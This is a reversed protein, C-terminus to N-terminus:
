KSDGKVKQLRYSEGELPVFLCCDRLRDFVAQGAFDRLGQVNLNTTIITPLMESYRANILAYIRGEVTESWKGKGVDDLVLFDARRLSDLVEKETYGVGQYAANILYMLELTNQFIGTYNRQLAAILIAVALHTKGTGPAGYIVLGQGEQHCKSIENIYRQITHVAKAQEARVEFNDITCNEYRRPIQADKYVKRLIELQEKKQIEEEVRLRAERECQCHYGIIIGNPLRETQLMRIQGCHPCIDGKNFPGFLSTTM